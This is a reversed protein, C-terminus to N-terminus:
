SGHAETRGSAYVGVRGSLVHQVYRLSHPAQRRPARYPRLEEECQARRLSRCRYVARYPRIATIRKIFEVGLWGGLLGGVITKGGPALLLALFHGSRWASFVTPWHEAIGLLRSGAVAGVAAAAIVTWRQPEALADGQRTRNFRFVAYGAAYALTEFLPHWAPHSGLPIM